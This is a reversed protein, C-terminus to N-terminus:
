FFVGTLCGFFLVIAIIIFSLIGVHAGIVGAVLVSESHLNPNVWVQVVSQPPYKKLLRNTLFLMQSGSYGFAYRTAFYELGNVQYRYEISASYTKQFSGHREIMIETYLIEGPVRQWQLALINRLIQLSLHVILVVLVIGIVGASLVDIFDM